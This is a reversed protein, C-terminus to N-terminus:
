DEGKVKEGDNFRQVGAAFDPTARMAVNVSRAHELGAELPMEEVEYFLKKTFAMAQPSFEALCGAIKMAADFQGGKPTVENILGWELATRAPIKKGTLLLELARHRGVLKTLNVLVLAAVFGRRIEPYGFLADESAVVIDASLALGCGGALAYGSVCAIVPKPLRAAMGQIEMTVRARREVADPAQADANGFQKIDAGSCFHDGAGRIVAVRLETDEAFSTLAGHLKEVLDNSLSNYKEPRNLTLIYIGNERQELLIDEM